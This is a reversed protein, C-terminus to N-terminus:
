SQYIPLLQCWSFYELNSKMGGHLNRSKLGDRVIKNLKRFGLDSM